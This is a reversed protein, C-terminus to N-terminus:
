AQSRSMEDEIILITLEHQLTALDERDLKVILKCIQKLPTSQKILGAAITAARVSRYEGRQYAAQGCCEIV